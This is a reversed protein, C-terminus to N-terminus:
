PGGVVVVVALNGLVGFIRRETFRVKESMANYIIFRSGTGTGGNVVSVRCSCIRVLLM